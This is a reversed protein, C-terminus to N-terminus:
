KTKPESIIVAAEEGDRLQEQLKRLECLLRSHEIHYDDLMLDLVSLECEKDRIARRIEQITSTTTQDVM